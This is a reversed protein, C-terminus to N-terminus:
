PFQPPQLDQPKPRPKLEPVSALVEPYKEVRVAQRAQLIFARELEKRKQLLLQHRLATEVQALPLVDSERRELLKLLYVGKSDSFVPSVEGAKRLSFAAAVMERSLWAPAHKEDVWGIDGGKYRSAQDESYSISLSGFGPANAAGPELAKQRAEELRSRLEAMKEPSMTHEFRLYLAALHVQAERTYRHRNTEYAAQIEEASVTAKEIQAALEREKLKGILLNRYARQVEPDKDLGLQVSKVFLAETNIMEELLTNKDLLEPNLGGRREVQEQFQAVRIERTGVKALLTPDGKKECSTGALVLLLLPPLGLWSWNSRARTSGRQCAAPLLNTDSCTKVITSRTRLSIEPKRPGAPLSPILEM